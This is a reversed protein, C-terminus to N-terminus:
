QVVRVVIPFDDIALVLPGAKKELRREEVLSMIFRRKRQKMSELLADTKLVVGGTDRDALFKLQGRTGQKSLWIAELREDFKPGILAPAPGAMGWLKEWLRNATDFDKGVACAKM